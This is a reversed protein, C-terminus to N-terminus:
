PIIIGIGPTDSYIRKDQHFIRPIRRDSPNDSRDICDFSSLLLFHTPVPLGEERRRREERGEMEATETKKVGKGKKGKEKMSDIHLSLAEREKKEEGSSSERDVKGEKERREEEM